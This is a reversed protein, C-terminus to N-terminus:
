KIDRVLDDLIKFIPILIDCDNLNPFKKENELNRKLKEIEEIVRSIKIVSSETENTVWVDEKKFTM